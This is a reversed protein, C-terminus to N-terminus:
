CGVGYSQLMSELQQKRSVAPGVGTSVDIWESLVGYSVFEFCVNSIQAIEKCVIVHLTPTRVASLDILLCRVSLM